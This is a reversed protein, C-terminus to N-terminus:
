RVNLPSTAQWQEKMRTGLIVAFGHLRAVGAAVGMVVSVVTIVALGTGLLLGLLSLLSLM